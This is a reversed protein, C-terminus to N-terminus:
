VKKKYQENPKRGEACANVIKGIRADKTKQQKASVVQQIYDNRYGPTLSEFFSLAPKNKRLAALLEPPAEEKENKAVRKFGANNVAVAERIYAKLQKENIESLTTFKISRNFDNDVCHNFLGLSDKMASGNFFTLKVHSKFASWGCVMGNSAYNPGWKWDERISPDAALAIRRLESCIARSWEPLSELYASVKSGAPTVSASMRQKEWRFNTNKGVREKVKKQTFFTSFFKTKKALNM